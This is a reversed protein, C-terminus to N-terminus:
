ARARKLIGAQDGRHDTGKKDAWKMSTASARSARGIGFSCSRRHCYRYGAANEPTKQRRAVNNIPPRPIQSLFLPRHRLFQSFTSVNIVPPRTKELILQTRPSHSYLFIPSERQYAKHFIFINYDPYFFFQVIYLEHNKESITIDLTPTGKYIFLFSLNWHTPFFKQTICNIM